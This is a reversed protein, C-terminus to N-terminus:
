EKADQVSGLKGGIGFKGRFYKREQGWYQVKDDKM